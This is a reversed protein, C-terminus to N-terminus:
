KMVTVQLLEDKGPELVATMSVAAQEKGSIEDTSM